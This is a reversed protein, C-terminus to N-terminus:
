VYYVLLSGIVNFKTQMEGRVAALCTDQNALHDGKRQLSPGVTDAMVLHKTRRPGPKGGPVVDASLGARLQFCSVGRVPAPVSSLEACGLLGSTGKLKMFDSSLTFKKSKTSM